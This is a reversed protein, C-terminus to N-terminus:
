SQFLFVLNQYHAWLLDLKRLEEKYDDDNMSFEADDLREQAEELLDGLTAITPLDLTNQM